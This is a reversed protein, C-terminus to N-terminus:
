GVWWRLHISMGIKHLCYRDTRGRDMRKNTWGCALNYRIGRKAEKAAAEWEIDVPTKPVRNKWAVRLADVNACKRTAQVDNQNCYEHENSNPQSQAVMLGSLVGQLVANETQVFQGPGGCMAVVLRLTM